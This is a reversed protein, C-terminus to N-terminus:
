QDHIQDNWQWLLQRQISAMNAKICYKHARQIADAFRPPRAFGTNLWRLFTKGWGERLWCFHPVKIFPLSKLYWCRSVSCWCHYWKKDSFSFCLDAFGVNTRAFMMSGAKIFRGASFSDCFGNSCYLFLLCVCRGWVHISSSVDCWPQYNVVSKQFATVTGQLLSRDERM